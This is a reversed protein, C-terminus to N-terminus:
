CSGHGFGSRSSGKELNKIINESMKENWVVQHEDM